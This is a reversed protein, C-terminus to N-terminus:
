TIMDMDGIALDVNVPTLILKVTRAQLLIKYFDLLHGAQNRM